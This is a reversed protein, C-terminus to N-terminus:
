TQQVNPILSEDFAQERPLRLCILTGTEPSSSIEINGGMEKARKNMSPIGNGSRGQSSFTDEFSPPEVKFGKGNDKITLLVDTQSVGLDIEVETADSHKAVNNVAEKFVLFVERRVNSNLSIEDSASPSKFSVKVGKQSLVDSAFRRMRQTLDSLHDKSPNISWVIDSM